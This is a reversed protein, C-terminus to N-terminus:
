TVIARAWTNDEEALPPVPPKTYDLRLDFRARDYLAHLVANLDLVPEPDGGLLPIPIPPISQRVGFAYLKARPRTRGRSVLIRYDGTVPQRSAIPM